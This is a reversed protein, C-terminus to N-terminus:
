HSYFAFLKFEDCSRRAAGPIIGVSRRINGIRNFGAIWIKGGVSKDSPYFFNVRREVLRKTRQFPHFRPRKLGVLKKGRVLFLDVFVEAGIGLGFCRPQEDIVNEKGVISFVRIVFVDVDNDIRPEAMAYYVAVGALGDLAVPAFGVVDHAKVLELTGNTRM